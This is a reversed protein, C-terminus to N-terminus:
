IQSQLATIIAVHYIDEESCGRSLDNAPKALGQLFPGIAAAGALREVLKYSINGAALNPFILTNAKGAVTSGPAKSRGVAEVLAADAQFEGDIHLNPARERVIRLAEVVTDVLPGTGSGKTSYSLLAVVPDVGLLTKTSGATAIAIEALQTATPEIVVACDAFALMGQHGISPNPIAMLFVSSVTQVGPASGLCHLAARVTEATTNAAGGVFGDADNAAVMLAAFYLPRTAIEQAEIETVGKAKRREHYIRAYAKLKPSQAPDLFIVERDLGGVPPGILIPQVLGEQALRAAASLVRPDQGEPFVIRKKQPFSRARQKLRAMFDLATQPAPM